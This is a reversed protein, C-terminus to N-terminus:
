LPIDYRGRWFAIKERLWHKRFLARFAAPSLVSSELVARRKAPIGPLLKFFALNGRVYALPHGSWVAKLLGWTKVFLIAPIFRWLFGAPFNKLVFLGFNREAYYLSTYSTRGGQSAGGHHYVRSAPVFLIREGAHQARFSLDLDEYNLFYDPDFLGIRDLVRRAFLAAGGCASTILRPRDFVAVPYGVFTCGKGCTYLTDGASDVRSPDAYQILMSSFVGIDPHADVARALQELADEAARVDNNLFYVFRGRCYPYGHNNGGGFGLNGPADVVTVEPYRARVFDASGDHSANDVLIVEFDRFTQARLSDLCEPLFKLGNYNLVLVSILPRVGPEAM